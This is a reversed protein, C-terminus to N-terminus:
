VVCHEDRAGSNLRLDYVDPDAQVSHVNSHIFVTDM